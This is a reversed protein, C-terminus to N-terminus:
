AGCAPAGIATAEYTTAAQNSQNQGSAAAFAKEFAVSDNSKAAAIATTFLSLEQNLVSIAGTACVLVVTAVAAAIGVTFGWGDQKLRIPKM